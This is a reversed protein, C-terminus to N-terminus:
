YLPCKCVIGKDNLIELAHLAARHPHGSLDMGVALGEGAIARAGNLVLHWGNTLRPRSERPVTALFDMIHCLDKLTVHDLPLDDGDGASDTDAPVVEEVRQWDRCGDRPGATLRGPQHRGGLRLLDDATPWADRLGPAFGHHRIETEIFTIM